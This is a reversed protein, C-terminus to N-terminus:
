QFLDSDMYQAEKQSEEYYEQIDRSIIDRADSLDPGFPNEYTSVLTPEENTSRKKRSPSGGEEEPVFQFDYTEDDYVDEDLEYEDEERDDSKSSRKRKKLSEGTIDRFLSKSGGPRAQTLFGLLFLLGMSAYVVRPNFDTGHLLEQIGYLTLVAGCGATVLTVNIRELSFSLVALIMAFLLAISWAFLDSPRFQSYLTGIVMLFLLFFVGIRYLFYAIVACIIAGLSMCIAAIMMDNEDIIISLMLGEAAGALLGTLVIWVKRLSYGFFCNILAFVILIGMLYPHALELYPAFSSVGEITRLVSLLETIQPM